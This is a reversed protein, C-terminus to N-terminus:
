SHVLSVIIRNPVQTLHAQGFISVTTRYKGTRLPPPKNSLCFPTQPTSPGGGAETCSGYTTHVTVPFRNAGPALRVTPPCAILTSTAQYTYGQGDLGVQLWGDAACTEVTIQRTTTNTLVVTGKISQGRVVSKRNLNLHVKVPASSQSSAGAVGGWLALILLSSSAACSFKMLFM